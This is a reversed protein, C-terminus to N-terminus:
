RVTEQEGAVSVEDGRIFPPCDCCFVTARTRGVNEYAHVQGTRWVVPDLGSRRAGDRRLEGVVSWELERMVRHFHSPIQRGPEVHLLYLGAETTELLVEVEGFDTHEYRRPYDHPAREIEVCVSRARGRLALPKHLSLRVQDVVPHNGLVMAAVEEAAMELLRYRRFRLLAGVEDAVRDYDCTESIRGSHAAASLDLRLELDLALPQERRREEPLVGVICEISLHDIRIRDRPM